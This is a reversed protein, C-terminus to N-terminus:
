KTITDEKATNRLLDIQRYLKELSEVMASVSTTVGGTIGLLHDISKQVNFIARKEEDTSVAIDKSGNLMLEMNQEADRTLNEQSICMDLITDIGANVDNVAREVDVISNSSNIILDTEKEIQDVSEKIMEQISKAQQISVDALKGIEDAVVAFGRGYNGARAAEISANLSLLNTKEAIDNIVETIERIAGSSEKIKMMVERVEELNKRTQSTQGQSQFSLQVAKKAADTIRNISSIYQVLIEKNKSITEEQRKANLSISEISASVQEIAASIEELNTGQEDMDDRLKRAMSQVGSSFKTLEIISNKINSLVDILNKNKEEIEITSIELRRTMDIVRLSLIAGFGLILSPYGFNNWFINTFIVNSISLADHVICIMFIIYAFLMIAAEKNKKRLSQIILYGMFLQIIIGFGGIIDFRWGTIPDNETASLILLLVFPLIILFIRRIFVIYMHLLKELFIYIWIIEISLLAYYLKDQTNFSMIFYDPLYYHFSLFFWLFSVASFHLALKNTKDLFFQALSSFAILLTLMGFGLPLYEAGLRHFFASKKVEELPAIFPIGNWLAFQNTFVRVAIINKESKKILEPPIHYYRFFNWESFFDPYEKGSAGIRVGNFYTQEVDWVKGVFFAIDKGSLEEPITIERRLWFSQRKKQTDLLGPLTITRWSSHDFEILKFDPNDGLIIKWNESLELRPGNSCNIFFLALTIVCLFIITRFYIHTPKMSVGRCHCYTTRQRSPSLVHFQTKYIHPLNNDPFMFGDQPFLVLVFGTYYVKNAIFVELM